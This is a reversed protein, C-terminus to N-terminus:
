PRSFDTIKELFFADAQLLKPERSMYNIYLRTVWSSILWNYSTYAQCYKFVRTYGNLVKHVGTLNNISKNNFCYFM